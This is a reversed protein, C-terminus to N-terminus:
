RTLVRRFRMLTVLTIVLWAALAMWLFALSVIAL